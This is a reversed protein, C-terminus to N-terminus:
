FATLTLEYLTSLQEECRFSKGLISITHMRTMSDHCKGTCNRSQMVLWIGSNGYSRSSSSVFQEMASPSRPQLMATAGFGDASTPSGGWTGPPLVAPTCTGRMGRGSSLSDATKASPSCHAAASPGSCPRCRRRAATVHLYAKLRLHKHGLLGASLAPM